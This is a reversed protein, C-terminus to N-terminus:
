PRWAAAFNGSKEFTLRQPQDTGMRFLYLESSKTQRSEYVLSSGDPSWVPQIGDKPACIAQTEGVAITCVRREGDIVQSFAIQSGDPSWVPGDLIDAQVWIRAQNSDIPLTYIGREQGDGSVFAITHGDPSWAPSRNEGARYTLNLIDRSHLTYRYVESETGNVVHFLLMTGDPSWSLGGLNGAPLGSVQEILDGDYNSLCITQQASEECVFAVLQSDPSWVPMDGLAVPGASVQWVDREADYIGLTQKEKNDSLYALYRGDPSWVPNTEQAPSATLNVAGMATLSYLDLSEGRWSAFTIEADAPLATGEPKPQCSALLVGSLIFALVKQFRASM